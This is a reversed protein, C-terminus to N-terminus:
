KFEISYKKIFNTLTKIKDKTLDMWKTKGKSSYFQVKIGYEDLPLLKKLESEAYDSQKLKEAIKELENFYM